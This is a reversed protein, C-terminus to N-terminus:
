VHDGRRLLARLSQVGWGVGDLLSPALLLALYPLLLAASYYSPNLACFEARARQGLPCNPCLLLPSM